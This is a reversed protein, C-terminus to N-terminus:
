RPIVVWKGNVKKMAVGGAAQVQKITAELEEITEEQEKIRTLLSADWGCIGYGRKPGYHEEIQENTAPEVWKPKPSGFNWKMILTFWNDKMNITWPM